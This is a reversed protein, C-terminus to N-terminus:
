TNSKRNRAMESPHVNRIEIKALDEETLYTIGNLDDQEAIIRAMAEERTERVAKEQPMERAFDSTTPLERKEVLEYEEILTLRNGNFFVASNIFYKYPHNGRAIFQNDILEALGSLISNTASYKTFLKCKELDFEFSDQNKELIDAIYAFVRMASKSLDFWNCLSTKFIKTFQAKDVEQKRAFLSHGKVAGHHDILLDAKSDSFFLKREGKEIHHLTEQLFPNVKNFPHASLKNYKM